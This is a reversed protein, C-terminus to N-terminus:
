GNKPPANNRRLLSRADVKLAKPVVLVRSRDVRGADDEGPLRLHSGASFSQVFVRRPPQARVFNHREVVPHRRALPLAFLTQRPPGVRGSPLFDVTTEHELFDDLANTREGSGGVVHSDM